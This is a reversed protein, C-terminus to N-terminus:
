SQVFVMRFFFFFFFFTKRYKRLFIKLLPISPYFNIAPRTTFRFKEISTRELKTRFKWIALPFVVYNSIYTQENKINCVVTRSHFKKICTAFFSPLLELLETINNRLPELSKYVLSILIFLLLFLIKLCIHISFTFCLLLIYKLHDYVFVM